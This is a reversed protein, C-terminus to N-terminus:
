SHSLPDPDRPVFGLTRQVKTTECYSSRGTYTGAFNLSFPRFPHTFVERVGFDMTRPSASQLVEYHPSMPIFNNDLTPSVRLNDYSYQTLNSYQQPASSLGTYLLMPMTDLSIPSAYLQDSRGHRPSNVLGESMQISLKLELWGPGFM